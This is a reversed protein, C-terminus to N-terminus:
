TRVPALLHVWGTVHVLTYAALLVGYVPAISWSGLASRVDTTTISAGFMFVDCRLYTGAHLKLALQEQRARHAKEQALYMTDLFGFVVIPLLTFSAVLPLKTAGGLAIFASVLSLCWTKCSASQTSLRTVIAQMQNMHAVAAPSDMSLTATDSPQASSSMSTVPTPKADFWKM